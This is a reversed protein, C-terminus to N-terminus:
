KNLSNRIAHRLIVSRKAGDTVEVLNDYLKSDVLLAGITGDGNALAESAKKIASAADNLKSVTSNLTKALDLSEDYVVQHLLGDGTKIETAIDTVLTATNALARAAESLNAFLGKETKEYILANLLGDGTKVKNVVDNISDTAKALNGVILDADKKSYFLRHMLGDGKEVQNALGGLAKAGASINTFTQKDLGSIVGNLSDSIQAVNEIITQAKSMLNGIDASDRSTIISGAEKEPLTPDGTSISLYKDGLLGQSEISIVSNERVRDRFKNDLLITIQVRSEELNKSFGIRHVRGSNIGGIRIPAGESLGSVDKFTTYYNSQRSFINREKGLILVGAVFAVLSIFIFVGARIPNQDKM